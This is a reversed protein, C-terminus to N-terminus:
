SEFSFMWQVGFQDTVMGYDTGWFTDHLEMTVKGGDALADSMRETEERSDPSLVISFNNGEDHPMGMCPPVDSGILLHGNLIKLQVNMILRQEAEPLKPSGDCSPIDGFRAIGQGVFEGGFMSKYFTSAEETQNRFNLYTSVSAM